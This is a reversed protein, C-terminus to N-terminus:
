ADTSPSRPTRSRQWCCDLIELHSTDPEVHAAEDLGLQLPSENGVEKRKTNGEGPEKGVKQKMETKVQM